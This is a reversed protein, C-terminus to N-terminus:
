GLGAFTRGARRRALGTRLPRRADPPWRAALPREAPSPAALSGAPCRACTWSSARGGLRHAPVSGASSRPDSPAETNKTLRFRVAILRLPAPNFTGAWTSPTACRQGAPHADRSRGCGNDFNLRARRPKQEPRRFQLWPESGPTDKEYDPRGQSCSDTWIRDIGGMCSGSTPGTECLKGFRSFNRSRGPIPQSAPRRPLRGSAVASPASM